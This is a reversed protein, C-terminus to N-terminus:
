DRYKNVEKWLLFFKAKNKYLYGKMGRAEARKINGENDDFFLIEEPRLRLKEAVDTFVSPDRKSKHLHYSNFVYDFHSFINEKENIEDLWNTQDSLIGTIYGKLRLRDVFRLLERDLSFRNLLERRLSDDDGKIGTKRRLAEWYGQETAMGTVYGTEFVLETATDFFMEPDLGNKRAIAMLGARFGEGALVGGFDFLVAKIV